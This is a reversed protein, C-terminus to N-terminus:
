LQLKLTCLYWDPNSFIM